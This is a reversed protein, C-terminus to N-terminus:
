LMIKKDREWQRYPIKTSRFVINHNSPIKQPHQYAGYMKRLIDDYRESIFVKLTEFKGPIMKRYWEKKWYVETRLPFTGVVSFMKTETNQYKMCLKEYKEALWTISCWRYLMRCIPRGIKTIRKHPYAYYSPSGMIIMLRFANVMHCFCWREVKSDPLNDLPFIDIFIGKNYSYYMDEPIVCTTDSNRLKAHGSFYGADSFATQLFYPKQFEKSAVACLKEYDTRPMDIDIDDDWPIFGNHRVCGLLTGGSPYYKLQYKECVGLFQKLLDLEVAWLKKMKSSVRYGCRIEEEYFTEELKIIDIM